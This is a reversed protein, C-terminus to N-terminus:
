NYTKDLKITILGRGLLLKIKDADLTEVSLNYDSLSNLWEIPETLGTQKLTNEFIETTAKMLNMMQLIADNSLATLLDCGESLYESIGNQLNDLNGDKGYIADYNDRLADNNEISKELMLQQKKYKTIFETFEENVSAMVRVADQKLDRISKSKKNLLTKLDANTASPVITISGEDIVQRYTNILNTLDGGKKLDSFTENQFLLPKSAYFDTIMEYKSRCADWEKSIFETLSQLYDDEVVAMEKQFRLFLYRINEDTSKAVNSDVLAKICKKINTIRNSIRASYTTNKDEGKRVELSQHKKRIVEFIEKYFVITEDKSQEETYLQSLQTYKLEDIVSVKEYETKLTFLFDDIENEFANNDIFDTIIRKIKNDFNVLLKKFISSDDISDIIQKASLIKEIDDAYRDYNDKLYKKFDKVNSTNKNNYQSTIWLIFADLGPATIKEYLQNFLKIIATEKGEFDSTKTISDLSLSLDTLQEIIEPSKLESDLKGVFQPKNRREIAIKYKKTYKDIQIM